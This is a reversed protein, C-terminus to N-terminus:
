SMNVRLQSRRRMTYVLFHCFGRVLPVAEGLPTHNMSYHEFKLQYKYQAIQRRLAELMDDDDFLFVVGDKRDFDPLILGFAKPLRGYIWHGLLGQEQRRRAIIDYRVFDALAVQGTSLGTTARTAINKDANTLIIRKTAMAALSARIGDERDSFLSFIPIDDTAYDTGCILIEQLDRLWLGGDWNMERHRSTLIVASAMSFHSLFVKLYIAPHEPIRLALQQAYSGSLIPDLDIVLEWDAGYRSKTAVELLRQDRYTPDQRMRAAAAALLSNADKPDLETHSAMIDVLTDHASLVGRHLTLQEATSNGQETHLEEPM